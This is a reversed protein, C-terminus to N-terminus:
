LKSAAENAKAAKKMAVSAAVENNSVSAGFTNIDDSYRNLSITVRRGKWILIDNEFTAGAQTKVAQVTSTSPQGYKSIFLAKVKDFDRTNGSLYLYEIRRDSLMTNLSYFYSLGLKPLGKIEYYDATYAKDRCLSTPEQGPSLRPCEPLDYVIDGNLKVGMFSDPEQNWPPPEAPKKAAFASGAVLSALLFFAIKSKM